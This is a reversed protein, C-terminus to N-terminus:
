VKGVIIKYYEKAGIHDFYNVLLACIVTSPSANRAIILGYGFVSGVVYHTESIDLSTFETYTM